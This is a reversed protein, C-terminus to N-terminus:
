LQRCKLRSVTRSLLSHGKQNSNILASDQAQLEVCRTLCPIKWLGAGPKTCKLTQKDKEGCHETAPAWSMNKNYYPGPVEVKMALGLLGGLPHCSGEQPVNKHWPLLKAVCPLSQLGGLGFLTYFSCSYSLSALCVSVITPLHPVFCINLSM